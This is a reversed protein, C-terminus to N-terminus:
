RYQIKTSIKRWKTSIKSIKLVSNKFNQTAASNNRYQRRWPVLKQWACGSSFSKQAESGEENTCWLMCRRWWATSQGVWKWTIKKIKPSKTCIIGFDLKLCFMRQLGSLLAIGTCVMCPRLVSNRQPGWLPPRVTDANTPVALGPIRNYIIILRIWKVKHWWPQSNLLRQGHQPWLVPPNILVDTHRRCKTKSNVLCLLKRITLAKNLNM